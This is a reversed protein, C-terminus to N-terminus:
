GLQLMHLHVRVKQKHTDAVDSQCAPQIDNVPFPASASELPMLTPSQIKVEFHLDCCTCAMGTVGVTDYFTM